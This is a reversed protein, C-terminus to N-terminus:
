QKEEKWEFNVDHERLIEETKDKGLFKEAMNIILEASAYETNQILATGLIKIMAYGGKKIEVREM